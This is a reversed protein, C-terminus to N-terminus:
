TSRSRVLRTRNQISGGDPQLAPEVVSALGTATHLSVKANAPVVQIAAAILERRPRFRDPGAECAPEARALDQWSPFPVCAPDFAQSSFDPLFCFLGPIESISIKKIIGSTKRIKSAPWSYPTFHITFQIKGWVELPENEATDVGIKALLYENSLERRSRCM